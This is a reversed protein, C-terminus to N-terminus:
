GHYLGIPLKTFTSRSVHEGSVKFYPSVWELEVAKNSMGASPVSIPFNYLPIFDSSECLGVSKNLM